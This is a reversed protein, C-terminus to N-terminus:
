NLIPSVEKPCVYYISGNTQKITKEFRCEKGEIVYDFIIENNIFRSMQTLFVEVGGFVKASMGYVLVRM